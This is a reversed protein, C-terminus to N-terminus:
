LFVRRTSDTTVSPMNPNNIEIKLHKINDSNTKMNYYSSYDSDKYSHSKLVLKNKGTDWNYEFYQM